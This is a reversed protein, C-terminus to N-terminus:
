LCRFDVTSGTNACILNLRLILLNWRLPRVAANDSHRSTAAVWLRMFSWLWQIVASVPHSVWSLGRRCLDMGEAGGLWWSAVVKGSLWPSVWPPQAGRIVDTDERTDAAFRAQPDTDRRGRPTGASASFCSKIGILPSRRHVIVRHAESTAFQADGPSGPALV